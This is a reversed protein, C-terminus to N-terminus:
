GKPAYYGKRTRIRADGHTKVRLAINHFRGDRPDNTAYYNLIYQQSLDAAIQTFADDLDRAARPVYVAGGTQAAFTELRREAALDRLNLSANVGTQVAYIQCNDAVARKLAYDFTSDSLTDAGDSVIVIVRREPGKQWRLLDVAQVISDFLATAGEPKGFREITQVLTRIDSTFRQELMPVTAVSYIAAQDIPRMVRKFFHIAAQKELERASSLSSSNDFLLVLRVPTEAFSMEAISRVEGDVRFEFDEVRLNKVAHGQVDVVSAPVPVLNSAVRVIEDAGVETDKAANTSASSKGNQQADSNSIDSTM